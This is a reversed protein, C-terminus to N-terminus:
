PQTCVPQAHSLIVRPPRAATDNVYPVHISCTITTTTSTITATWGENSLTIGNLWNGKSIVPQYRQESYPNFLARPFQSDAVFTSELAVLRLLDARMAAVAERRVRFRQDVGSTSVSDTTSTLQHAVVAAQQGVNVVSHVAQFRWLLFGILATLIALSSLAVLNASPKM